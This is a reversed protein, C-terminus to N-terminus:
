ILVSLLVGLLLFPFPRLEGRPTHLKCWHQEFVFLLMIVHLFQLTMGRRPSRAEDSGEGGSAPFANHM